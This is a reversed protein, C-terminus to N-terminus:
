QDAILTWGLGVSTAVLKFADEALAALGQRM